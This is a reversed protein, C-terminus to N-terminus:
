SNEGSDSTVDLMGTKLGSQAFYAGRAKGAVHADHLQVAVADRRKTLRSESEKEKLVIEGLLHQCAAAQEACHTRDETSRWQRESPDQNSFPDLDKEIGQLAGIVHQKASLVKLLQTLDGDDILELQRAGLDCLQALCEQKKAILAILLDTEHFTM